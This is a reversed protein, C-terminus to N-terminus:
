RLNSIEYTRFSERSSPKLNRQGFTFIFPLTLITTWLIRMKFIRFSCSEIRPIAKRLVRSQKKRSTIVSLVMHLSGVDMIFTIWYSKFMVHIITWKVVVVVEEEEKCLVTVIIFMLQITKEAKLSEYEKFWKKIYNLEGSGFILSNLMNLKLQNFRIETVLWFYYM